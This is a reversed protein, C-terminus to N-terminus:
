DGNYQVGFHGGILARLTPQINVYMVREGDVAIYFGLGTLTRTIVVKEGDPGGATAVEEHFTGIGQPERDVEVPLMETNM